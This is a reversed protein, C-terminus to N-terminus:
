MEIKPKLFSLCVKMKAHLNPLTVFEFKQVKFFFIEGSKVFLLFLNLIENPSVM